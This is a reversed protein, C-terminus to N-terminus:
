GQDQVDVILPLPCVSSWLSFPFFLFCTLFIDLVTACGPAVQAIKEREDEGLNYVTTDKEAKIACSIIDTAM